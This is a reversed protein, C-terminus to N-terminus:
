GFGSLFKKSVSAGFTIHDGLCRPLHVVRPSMFAVICYPVLRSAADFQFAKCVVFAYGGTLGTVCACGWVGLGSCDKALVSLLRQFTNVETLKVIVFSSPSAVVLVIHLAEGVAGVRFVVSQFVGPCRPLHVAGPSMLRIYRCPGQGSRSITFNFNFGCAVVVHLVMIIVDFLYTMLRKLRVLCITIVRM